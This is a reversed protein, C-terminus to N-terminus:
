IQPTYVGELDERIAFWVPKREPRKNWYVIRRNVHKDYFYFKRYSSVPDSCKYEDPMALAFPTLNMNPRFLEPFHSSWYIKAIYRLQEACGHDKDFRTSYERLQETAHIYLWTFNHYSERLWQNCPHNVYCSKYLVDDYQSLLTSDRLTWRKINRGKPSKQVEQKGALVRICTSLMQTSELLMKNIHKDCLSQAAIVPDKDIVFINM